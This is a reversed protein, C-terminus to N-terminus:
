DCAQGIRKNKQGTVGGDADMEEDEEGGSGDEGEFIPPNSSTRQRASPKTGGNTGGGPMSALMSQLDSYSVPPMPNPAQGNATQNPRGPGIGNATRAVVSPRRTGDQPLLSSIPVGPTPVSISGRPTNASGPVGGAVMNQQATSMRRQTNLASSPASDPQPLNDFNMMEDLDALLKEIDAALAEPTTVSTSRSVVFGKKNVIFKEFNWKIGSFGLWSKQSKIYKYVPHANEGNVEVKKTIPFKVNFTRSCFEVIEEEQGPEQAGFQNCPFGLIVLGKESYKEHLEELGKYQPTFGCKSAVNVIMVVKGRLDSFPLEQGKALTASLAYFTENEKSMSATTITNSPTALRYAIYLAAVVALGSTIHHSFSALSTISRATPLFLPLATASLGSNCLGPIPPFRGSLIDCSRPM